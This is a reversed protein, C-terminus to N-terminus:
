LLQLAMWRKHSRFFWLTSFWRNCLLHSFHLSDLASSTLLHSVTMHVYWYYWQPFTCLIEKTGMYCISTNTPTNDRHM